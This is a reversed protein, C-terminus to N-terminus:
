KNFFDNCVVSVTSLVWSHSIVRDIIQRSNRMDQELEIKVSKMKNLEVDKVRAQEDFQVREAQVFM